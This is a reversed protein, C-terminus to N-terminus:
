LEMQIIVNRIIIDVFYSGYSMLKSLTTKRILKCQIYLLLGHGM